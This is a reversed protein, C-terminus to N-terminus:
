NSASQGPGALLSRVSSRGRVEGRQLLGARSRRRFSARVDAHQQCLGDAADVLSSSSSSTVHRVGGPVGAPEIQVVGAPVEDPPPVAVVALLFAFFARFLPHAVLTVALQHEDDAAARGV